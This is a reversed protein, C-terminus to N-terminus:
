KRSLVKQLSDLARPILDGINTMVELARPPREQGGGHELWESSNRTEEAYRVAEHRQM